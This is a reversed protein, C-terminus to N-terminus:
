GARSRAAQATSGGVTDLLVVTVTLVGPADRLRQKVDAEVHRDTSLVILSTGSPEASRDLVMDHINVGAEGLITGVSGVVGPRDENTIMVMHRSPRVNIALSNVKVIYPDGRVGVLTGVLETGGGRVVVENIFDRPAIHCNTATRVGAETAVQPANVYTVNERRATALLGKLVALRAIAPDHDGIRGWLELEVSGPVGECIEALMGGMHECLPLFPRLVDAAARAEVNVAFPVLEGALAGNVQEAINVGARHQAEATSAGLHPTVVVGPLGFLPSSEIPEGDFTDLAAGGVRGSRLADALAEEDVLGGRAVNVIRVGPKASALLEPGILGVTEPTRAVHLTVFDSRAMLEPLGVLDIRLDRAQEASIYPDYAVTLMAFGAVREAVLRGVRGLGIIGLTKGSLEIGEWQAREWRGAVLAAHAQPINRAQALILAVTHEAASLVNSLPANVVTVGLRTATALDVNDLGVGARGVVVLDEAAELVDATVQTASRIILAQSGSVAGLLEGPSMGLRVDVEHGAERLVDLGASSIREAVLVRAM